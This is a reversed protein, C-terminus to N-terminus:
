SVGFIGAKIITRTTSHDRTLLESNYSVTFVQNVDKGFGLPRRVNAYFNGITILKTWSNIVGYEGSFWIDFSSCPRSRYPWEFTILALRSENMLPVIVSGVRACSSAPEPFPTIIIVEDSMNFSVISSRKPIIWSRVGGVYARNTYFVYSLVRSFHKEPLKIEM